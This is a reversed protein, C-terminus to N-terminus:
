EGMYTKLLINSERLVVDPFMTEQKFQSILSVAAGWYRDGYEYTGWKSDCQCPYAVFVRVWYCLSSFDQFKDDETDGTSIWNTGQVHINLGRTVQQGVTWKGEKSHDRGVFQLFTGKRGACTVDAEDFHCKRAEHNAREYRVHLSM